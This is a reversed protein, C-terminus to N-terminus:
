VDCVGSARHCPGTQASIIAYNRGLDSTKPGAVDGCPKRKTLNYDAHLMNLASQGDLAARSLIVDQAPIRLRLAHGVHGVQGSLLIEGADSALVTVGAQMDHRTVTCHLLAGADRKAFYRAATPDALVAEVRGRRVVKGQDVVVLHDALQTVEDMAHTVYIIPLAKEAALQALYPLVEAKRPGDLGALPEDMLLVDPGSMLARGLAVRQKEGGSLGSPRRALLDRLGLVDVVRDFDHRGGYTLNQAVSMHPFLRADQFVYGIKRRHPAVQAAKSFLMRNGLAIRGADPAMLGAIANIISTKGAGSPGFVVTVGAPAEFAVDLTLAGLQKTIEVTLM